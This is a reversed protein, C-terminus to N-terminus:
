LAIIIRYYNTTVDLFSYVFKASVKEKKKSQRLKVSVPSHQTPNPHHIEHVPQNYIRLNQTM